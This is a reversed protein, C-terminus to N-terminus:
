GRRSRGGQRPFSKWASTRPKETRGRCGKDAEVCKGGAGLPGVRGGDHKAERIRQALFWASKHDLDLSRRLETASAGKKTFCMLYFAILWKNLAIHSREMVTGLTVSFDKRCAKEACRYWGVKRITYAHDFTGCHPCIPGNPWRVRELWERAAEPNQFHREMFPKM